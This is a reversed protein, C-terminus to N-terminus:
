PVVEAIDPKRTAIAAAAHAARAGTAPVICGVEELANRQADLGQPDGATGLVYAVVRPGGDGMLEACVPALVGAPDPHAGYGLVVDLLVVAVGPDGAEARLVEIRAAPDIMPHPRGKTYEEEGLDLLIHSGAPAPLGRGEQLPVNSYVPGLHRTLIVQAESCLTGGSFYGRVSRRTSPLDKVAAEAQRPLGEALDPAQAGVAASVLAAGQELTEAFEVGAPRDDWADQGILATVLPKRDCQRTVTRAVSESPPKSVLLVADTDPDADLARVALAAMQGGVPESLDRGGVGIVQSVGIGWRDLLSMVEQAGTGAAAVVGIRGGRVANAFGLGTGGLVATGAGPGMVLRGLRAARDKLEVEQDLPVNDSFLLVHLGATLAKHAEMAAYEGPVSVVAVNASPSRSVAEELTRNSRATPEDTTASRAERLTREGASLAEDAADSTDARAALVLDGSGAPGDVSFGEEGLSEVNAPTAMVATAWSVTEVESMARAAGLLMVSDFYADKLVRTRATTM